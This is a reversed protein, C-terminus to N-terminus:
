IMVSTLDCHRIWSKLLPELVSVYGPRVQYSGLLKKRANILNNAHCHVARSVLKALTVAHPTYHM